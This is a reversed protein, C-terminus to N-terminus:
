IRRKLWSDIKYKGVEIENQQNKIEKEEVMIQKEGRQSMADIVENKKKVTTDKLTVQEKLAVVDEDEAAVLKMSRTMVVKCEEKLNKEINVGFSNSSKEALQKAM